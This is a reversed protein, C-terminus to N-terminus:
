ENKKLTVSKAILLNKTDFNLASKPNLLLYTNLKRRGNKISKPSKEGSKSSKKLTDWSALFNLTGVIKRNEETTRM